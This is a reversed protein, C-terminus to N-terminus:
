VFFCSSCIRVAKVLAGNGPIHRRHIGTIDYSDMNTAVLVASPNQQLLVTALCLKRYTFNTDHGIVVADVKPYDHLSLSSLSSSSSSSSSSTPQTVSQPSTTPQPNLLTSFDYTALDDRTMSSTTESNGHLVIFGADQLENCTGESGICFITRQQQLQHQKPEHQALLYQSCAYASTIMMDDILVDNPLQLFSTIKQRLQSRSVSGNNTVFLLRKPREPPPLLLLQQIAKSVDPTPHPSRYLVGDCDFMLTDIDQLYNQVDMSTELIMPAAVTRQQHQPLSSTFFEDSDYYQKVLQLEMTATDLLQKRIMQTTATDDNSSPSSFFSVHPNRKSLNRIENQFFGHAAVAYNRCQKHYFFPSSITNRRM